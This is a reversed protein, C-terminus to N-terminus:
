EKAYGSMKMGAKDMESSDDTSSPESAYQVEVEDGHFAVIKLVVEEGVKFTKGALIAKPLLATTEEEGAEKQPSSDDDDQATSPAAADSYSAEDM